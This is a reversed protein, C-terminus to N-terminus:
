NDDQMDALNHMEIDYNRNLFVNYANNADLFDNFELVFRSDINESYVCPLFNDDCYELALLFEEARFFVIRWVSAMKEYPSIILISNKPTMLNKSLISSQARLISQFDFFM